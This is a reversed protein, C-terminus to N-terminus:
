GNEKQRRLCRYGRGRWTLWRLFGQLGRHLKDAGGMTVMDIGGLMKEEGGAAFATTVRTRM